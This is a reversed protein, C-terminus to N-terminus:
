KSVPVGMATLKDLDIVPNATCQCQIEEGPIPSQDWRFRIGERARHSLRVRENKNTSWIYEEIGLLTQREKTIEGNLKGIQDRAIMKARRKSIDFRNQLEKEINKNLIGKMLGERIIREVDSFYQSDISKILRINEGTWLDLLPKLDPEYIFIDVRLVSRMTAILERRNYVNLSDAVRQIRSKIDPEVVKGRLYDNIDKLIRKIEDDTNGLRSMHRQALSMIDPVSQSASEDLAKIYSGLFRIYEREISQPYQWTRKPIIERMAVM